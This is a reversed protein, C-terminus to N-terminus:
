TFLKDFRGKMVAKIDNTMKGLKHDVIHGHNFSYTRLKDSRTGGGMQQRRNESLEKDFEEDKIAQLRSALIELAIAKNQHQSRETDIRVLMGSPIHKVQVCSMTRNRAQGGPGSGNQISVEVDKWDLDFKEPLIMPTVAVAIMSTQVKGRRQNGPIRQVCHKGGENSFAQVAGKGKVLLSCKSPSQDLITVKLNNFDAWKIYAETLEEVFKKSDDGGTGSAVDV